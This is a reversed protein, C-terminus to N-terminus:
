FRNMRSKDQWKKVIISQIVTFIGSFTWYIGIGVPLFLGFVIFVVVAINQSMQMPVKKSKINKKKEEWKKMWPVIKMSVVQAASVIIILFIYSWNHVFDSFLSQIATDALHWTGFVTSSKILRTTAVVRYMTYFFPATIFYSSFAAMPKVNNKKYLDFVELQKKQMSLRDKKGEYKANIEAIKGQLMQMKQSVLISKLNLLLTLGRIILVIVFITFIANLGAPLSSMGHMMSAALWAFPFVFIGYFPGYDFASKWSTITFYPAEYWNGGSNILSHSNQCRDGPTLGCIELGTGLTSKFNVSYDFMQQGCGWLGVVAFFVYIMIKFWRFIQKAVQKRPDVEKKEHVWFPNIIKTPANDETTNSIRLMRNALVM